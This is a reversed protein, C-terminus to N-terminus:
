VTELGVDTLRIRERYYWLVQTDPIITSGTKFTLLVCSARDECPGYTVLYGLGLFWRGVHHPALDGAEVGGVGVVKAVDGLTPTQKESAM